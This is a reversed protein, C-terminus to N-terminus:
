AAVAEILSFSTASPTISTFQFDATELLIKYEELTRERSGPVALMTLDVQTAYAAPRRRALGDRDAGGSWEAQYRGPLQAPDFRV